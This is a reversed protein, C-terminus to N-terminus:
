SKKQHVYNKGSKTLSSKQQEYARSTNYMMSQILKIKIRFFGKQSSYYTHIYTHIYTRIYEM